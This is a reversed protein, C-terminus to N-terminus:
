ELQLHTKKITEGNKISFSTPSEPNLLTLAHQNPNGEISPLKWVKMQTIEAVSIVWFINLSNDFALYCQHVVKTRPHDRNPIEQPLLDNTSFIQYAGQFHKAQLRFRM